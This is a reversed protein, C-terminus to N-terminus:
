SYSNYFLNYKAWQCSRPFIVRQLPFPLNPPVMPNQSWYSDYRVLSSNFTDNDGGWQLCLSLRQLCNETYSSPNQCVLNVSFIPRMTQHHAPSHHKSVYDGVNNDGPRWYILFQNQNVRDKVWYFRMDIAKSRKQKMTRKLFGIATENDVEMPTPPQPHGMEAPTVRFPLAEKANYFTAAVDTEMASSTIM